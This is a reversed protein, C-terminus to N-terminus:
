NSALQAEDADPFYLFSLFIGINPYSHVFQPSSNSNNSGHLSSPSAGKQGFHPLAFGSTLLYRMHRYQRM